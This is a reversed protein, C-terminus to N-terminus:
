GIALHDSLADISSAQPIELSVSYVQDTMKIEYIHASPYLLDLQRKINEVGIGKTYGGVDKTDSTPMSNSIKLQLINDRQVLSIHVFPNETNKSAGHKFANEVLSLIMFPIVEHKEHAIEVNMDFDLRSGYRLKELEVYNRVLDLEDEISILKIDKKEFMYSLLTRLRKAVEATQDSEQIALTYLNNLTNFLFHPHLQAQLFSLESQSRKAELAAIQEQQHYHQYILVAIITMVPIILVWIFYQILLKDHEVLIELLGEKPADYRTITEFFYIKMVRALVTALYLTVIGILAFRLYGKKYLLPLLVYLFVYTVIIQSPLYGIKNAFAEWYEGDLIFRIIPWILIVALWYTVHVRWSSLLSRNSNLRDTRHKM